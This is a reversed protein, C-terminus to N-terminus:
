GILGGRNSREGIRDIRDHWADHAETDIVAVGCETCLKWQGIRRRNVEDYRERKM